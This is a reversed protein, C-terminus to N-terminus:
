RYISHEEERLLMNYLATTIAATMVLMSYVPASTTAMMVIAVIALM